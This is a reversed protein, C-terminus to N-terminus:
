WEAIIDGATTGTAFVRQVRLVKTGSIGKYLVDQGEHTLVHLDGPTGIYLARSIFPLDATDSPTVPLANSPPATISVAHSDFTDVM